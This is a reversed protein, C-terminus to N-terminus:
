SRDRAPPLSGDPPLLSQLEIEKIEAEWIAFCHLHALYPPHDIGDDPRRFDLDYELEDPRIPALCVACVGASGKGGWLHAPLRHPLTGAQIAARAKERLSDEGNNM